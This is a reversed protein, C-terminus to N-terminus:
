DIYGMAGALWGISGDPQKLPAYACQYFIFEREVRAYSGAFFVVDRRRLPERYRDLMFESEEGMYYSVAEGRINRGYRDLVAQGIVKTVFDAGGDLVQYIVLNSALRPIAIIPDFDKWAPVDDGERRLSRWYAAFELPVPHDIDNEAVIENRRSVVKVDEESVAHYGIM